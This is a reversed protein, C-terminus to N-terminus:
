VHRIAQLPLLFLNERIEKNELAKTVMHIELQTSFDNKATPAYRVVASCAVDYVCKRWSAVCPSICGM